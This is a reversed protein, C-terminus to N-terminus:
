NKNIDLVGNLSIEAISTNTVNGKLKQLQETRM